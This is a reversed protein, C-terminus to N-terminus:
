RGRVRKRREIIPGDGIVACFPSEDLVECNLVRGDELTLHVLDGDKAPPKPELEVVSAQGNAPSFHIKYSVSGIRRPGWHLAGEGTLIGEPTDPAMGFWTCFM